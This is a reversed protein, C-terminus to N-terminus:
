LKGNYKLVVAKVKECLEVCPAKSTLAQSVVGDVEAYFQKYIQTSTSACGSLTTLALLLSLKKM